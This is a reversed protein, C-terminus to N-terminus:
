EDRGIRWTLFCAMVFRGANRGSNFTRWVWEFLFGALWLPFFLLCVLFLRFLRM